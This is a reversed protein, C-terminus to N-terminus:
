PFLEDTAVARRGHPQRHLLRNKGSEKHEKPDKDRNKPTQNRPGIQFDQTRLARRRRLSKRPRFFPRQHAQGPAGPPPPGPPWVATNSFCHVAGIPTVPLDPSMGNAGPAHTADRTARSWHRPSSRCSVHHGGRSHLSLTICSRLKCQWLGLARCSHV